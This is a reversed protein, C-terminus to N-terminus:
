IEEFSMSIIRGSKPSYEVGSCIFKKSKFSYASTTYVAKTWVGLTDSDNNKVTIKFNKSGDIIDKLEKKAYKTTENNVILNYKDHFNLGIKYNKSNWLGNKEAEEINARVNLADFIKDKYDDLYVPNGNKDISRCQNTPNNTEDSFSNGISEEKKGGGVKDELRYIELLSEIDNKFTIEIDILYDDALMQNYGYQEIYKQNNSYAKNLASLVDVGYMLQRNYVEYEKNFDTTQETAKIDVMQQQLPTLQGFFYVLASVIIVAILMGGAIKMALAANTDM